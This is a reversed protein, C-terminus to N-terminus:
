KNIIENIWVNNEYKIVGKNKMRLVLIFLIHFVM